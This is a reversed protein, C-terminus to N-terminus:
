VRRTIGGWTSKNSEALQAIRYWHVRNLSPCGSASGFGRYSTMRRRGFFVAGWILPIEAQAGHQEHEESSCHMTKPMNSAYTVHNSAITAPPSAAM